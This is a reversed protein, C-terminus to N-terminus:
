MFWLLMSADERVEGVAEGGAASPSIWIFCCQCSSQCVAHGMIAISLAFEVAGRCGSGQLCEGM